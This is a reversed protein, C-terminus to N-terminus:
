LIPDFAAYSLESMHGWQGGIDVHVQGHVAEISPGPLAQTAFVNYTSSKTLAYYQASGRLVDAFM